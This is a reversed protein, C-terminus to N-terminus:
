AAEKLNRGDHVEAPTLGELSSHPRRHNYFEFYAGLHHQLDAVSTYERRYVEEYKLSRWLREVFANDLARGRGDMSIRIDHSKLAKTWESSTFQCGQDTNFVKPVGHTRIADELARLCFGTDLTNSLAWSLVKRSYWDMVAVLYMFGKEMRIYTIDACWARNSRDVKMSRMLYPYVKHGKAPRSLNPKPCQAELGMLRMLRQVRKRGVKWGERRLFDRMQRSGFFPMETYLEDIRNRLAADKDARIGPRHYATSHALGILRCQRTVPVKRHKRDIM